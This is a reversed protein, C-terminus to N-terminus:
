STDEFPDPISKREERIRGNLEQLRDSALYSRGRRDGVARLLGADVLKKLDSTAVRESV